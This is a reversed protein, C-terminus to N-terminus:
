RWRRKIEKLKKLVINEMELHKKQAELLRVEAKLKDIETMENVPRKKGRRDKLGDIGHEEYKLTWNRVQQYSVEFKNSTNKYAKNHELCHKVIEIREDLTTKRGKTMLTGGSYSPKIEEHSNYKKIWQRLQSNSRLGYKLCIDRLSGQGALYEKVASIKVEKSYANNTMSPKLGEPGYHQYLLIWDKVSRKNVSLEDSIKQVSKIGLIYATVAAIKTEAPATLNRGM